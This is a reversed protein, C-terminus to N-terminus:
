IEYPVITSRQARPEGIRHMHTVDHVFSLGLDACKALLEPPFEFAYNRGSFSSVQLHLRAGESRLRQLFSRHPALFQLVEALTDEALNDTSSYEGRSFPDASWYSEQYVGDL